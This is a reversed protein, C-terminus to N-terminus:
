GRDSTVQPRTVRFFSGVEVDQEDGQNDIDLSSLMEVCPGQEFVSGFVKRGHKASDEGEDEISCEGCRESCMEEAEQDM